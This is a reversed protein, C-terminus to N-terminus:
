YPCQSENRDVEARIKEKIKCNDRNTLANRSINCLEALNDYTFYSATTGILLPMAVSQTTFDDLEFTLVASATTGILLPMAVYVSSYPLKTQGGSATTGILLPMAVVREKTFTGRKDKQSATTGILLPM